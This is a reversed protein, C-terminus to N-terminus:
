RQRARVGRAAGFVDAAAALNKALKEMRVLSERFSAAADVQRERQSFKMKTIDDEAEALEDLVPELEAVVAQYEEDSKLHEALEANRGAKDSVPHQYLPLEGRAKALSAVLELSDLRAKIRDRKKKLARVRGLLQAYNEVLESTFAARAEDSPM